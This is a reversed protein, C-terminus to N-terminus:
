ALEYHRTHLCGLIIVDTVDHLSPQYKNQHWHFFYGSPYIHIYYIVPTYHTEYHFDLPNALVRPPRTLTEFFTNEKSYQHPSMHRWHRSSKWPQGETHARMMLSTSEFNVTFLTIRLLGCIMFLEVLLTSSNCLKRVIM